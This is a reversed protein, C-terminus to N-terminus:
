KQGLFRSLPENSVKVLVDAVEDASIEEELGLWKEMVFLLTNAYYEAVTEPTVIESKAIYEPNIREVAFRMMKKFCNIVIVRMNGNSDNRMLRRHFKRDAEINKLILRLADYFMNNEILFNSPEIVDRYFITELLDYKDKFHNYFTPRILGAEDTIDRITIKEFPKKMVLKKLSQILVEETIQSRQM